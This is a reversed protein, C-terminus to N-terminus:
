NALILWAAGYINVLISCLVLAYVHWPLKKQFSLSLLAMLPIIADLIYRYGFQAAGTNHYAALLAFNCFVASWAGLIWWRNEYRRFLYVLAPTSLFISMGELSPQLLWKEGIRVQPLSAFMVKLNHLIYRPSFIGYTQANQVIAAEGSITVYGFDFFDGFRAQNYSLLGLIALGIPLASRVAWDLMHRFGPMTGEDKKIQMAIAFAFPWTMLSNPRALMAIGLLAGIVWPSAGRLAALIALALFTVTVIQSVFWVEGMISVWLHNSGFAFLTLLLFRSAQSLSVWQRAILGELIWYVVVVNFAGLIMSVDGMHITEPAAFLMVPMMLLAPLPPIPVYWKGNYLTLDHTTFNTVSGEALYLKGNLFQLALSDWYEFRNKHVWDVWAALHGYFVLVTLFIGAALMFRNIEHRRPSKAAAAHIFACIFYYFSLWLLPIEANDLHTAYAATRYYKLVLIYCGLFLWFWIVRRLPSFFNGAAPSDKYHNALLGASILVAIFVWLIPLFLSQIVGIAFEAGRAVPLIASLLVGALLLAAGYHVTLVSFLGNGSEFLSDLKERVRLSWPFPRYFSIWLAGSGAVLLAFGGGVLLRAASVGFLVQNGTESPQRLYLVLFVIGLILLFSLSATVPRNPHPIPPPM